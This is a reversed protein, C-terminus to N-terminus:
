ELLTATLQFQWSFSYKSFQFFSLGDKKRWGDTDRLSEMEGQKAKVFARGVGGKRTPGLYWERPFHLRTSFKTRVYQSLTVWFCCHNLNKSPKIQRKQRYRIKKSTLRMGSFRLVNAVRVSFLLREKVHGQSKLLFFYTVLHDNVSQERSLLDWGKGRKLLRIETLKRIILM